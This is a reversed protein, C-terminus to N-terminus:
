TKPVWPKTDQISQKAKQEWQSIHKRSKDNLEKDLEDARHLDFVRQAAGGGAKAHEGARLVTTRGDHGVGAIRDTLNTGALTCGVGGAFEGGRIM